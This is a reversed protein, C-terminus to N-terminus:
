FTFVTLSFILYVWSVKNTLPRCYYFDFIIRVPVHSAIGFWDTRFQWLLIKMSLLWHVFIGCSRGWVLSIPHDDVWHCSRLIGLLYQISCDIWFKASINLLNASMKPAEEMFCRVCVISPFSLYPSSVGPFERFTLTNSLAVQLVLFIWYHAYAPQTM